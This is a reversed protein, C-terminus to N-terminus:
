TKELKRRGSSLTTRKNGKRTRMNSKTRQGRVPLNKAHRIGRYANIDKLRKINAITERRLDGEIILKSIEARIIQLKEPGLSLPKQNFDVKAIQLIKQSLSRGLGYISTLGIVIRKNDPINVGAIRLM